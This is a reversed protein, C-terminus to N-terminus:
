SPKILTGINKYYVLNHLTFEWLIFIETLVYVRFLVNRYVVYMHLSFM